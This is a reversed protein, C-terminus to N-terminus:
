LLFVEMYTVVYMNLFLVKLIKKKKKTKQKTKKQKQNYWKGNLTISVWCRVCNKLFINNTCKWM